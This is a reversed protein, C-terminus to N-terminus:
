VPRDAPARALSFLVAKEVTKRLNQDDLAAAIEAAARRHEPAPRIPEPADRAPAEEVLPGPAFRIKPVGLRTAIETARHGLEFAWISDSTNVHLTGDRAVRAPWASRAIADGVAEPWAAVLDALGAQPGFRALESRM